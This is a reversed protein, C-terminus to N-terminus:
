FSLKNGKFTEQTGCDGREQGGKKCLSGKEDISWLLRHEKQECWKERKVYKSISSIAQHFNGQWSDFPPSEKIIEWKEFEDLFLNM